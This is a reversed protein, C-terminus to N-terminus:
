KSLGELDPWNKSEIDEIPCKIAFCIDPYVHTSTESEPVYVWKGDKKYFHLLGTVVKGDPLRHRYLDDDNGKIIVMSSKTRATFSLLKKGAFAHIQRFPEKDELQDDSVGLYDQNCYDNSQGVSYLLYQGEINQFQVLSHTPGCCIQKARLNLSNLPELLIPKKLANDQEYVSNLGLLKNFNRGWGWLKGEVDIAM